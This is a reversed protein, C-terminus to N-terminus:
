QKQGKPAGRTRQKVCEVEDFDTPIQDGTDSKRTSLTYGDFLDEDDSEFEIQATQSQSTDTQSQSNDVQFQSQSVSPPQTLPIQQLVDLAPSECTQNEEEEM